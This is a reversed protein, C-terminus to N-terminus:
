ADAYWERWDDWDFESEDWGMYEFFFERAEAREEPSNELDFWGTFLLEAAVPDTDISMDDLMDSYAQLSNGAADLLEFAGELPDSPEGYDNDDGAM